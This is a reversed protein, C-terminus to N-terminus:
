GRELQEVREVLEGIIDLVFSERSFTFGPKYNRSPRKRIQSQCRQAGASM